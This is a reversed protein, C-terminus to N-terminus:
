TVPQLPDDTADDPAPQWGAPEVAGYVAQAHGGRYAWGQDGFSWHWYESPYNTLGTPELAAALIERTTQAQKSLGRADFPFGAPDFPEFPSHHDLLVGSEDALL